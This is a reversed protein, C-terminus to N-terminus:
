LEDDQMQVEGEHGSSPGGGECGQGVARSVQGVSCGFPRVPVEM